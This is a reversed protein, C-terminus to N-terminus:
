AKNEAFYLIDSCFFFSFVRARTDCPLVGWAAMFEETGVAAQLCWGLLGCLVFFFADILTRGLSRYLDPFIQFASSKLWFISQLPLLLPPPIPNDRWVGLFNLHEEGERSDGPPREKLTQATLSTFIKDEFSTSTINLWYFVESHTSEVSQNQFTLIWKVSARDASCNSGSGEETFAALSWCHHRLLLVKRIAMSKSGYQVIIGYDAASPQNKWWNQQKLICRVGCKALLHCKMHQGWWIMKLVM